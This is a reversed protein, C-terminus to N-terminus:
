KGEKETDKVAQPKSTQLDKLLAQVEDYVLKVAKSLKKNPTMYLADLVTLTNEYAQNAM